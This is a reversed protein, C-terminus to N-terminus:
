KAIEKTWEKALRAAGRMEKAKDKIGYERLLESVDFMEGILNDLKILVLEKLDSKKM